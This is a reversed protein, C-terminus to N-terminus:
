IFKLYTQFTSISIWSISQVLIQDKPARGGDCCLNIVGPIVAIEQSGCKKKPNFKKLALLVHLNVLYGAPNNLPTSSSKLRVSGKVPHAM